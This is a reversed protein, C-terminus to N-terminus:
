RASAAVCALGLHACVQETPDGGAEILAILADFGRLRADLKCKQDEVIAELAAVPEESPGTFFQGHSPSVALKAQGNDFLNWLATIVEQLSIGLKRSVTRTLGASSGAAIFQELKASSASRLRTFCGITLPGRAVVNVIGAHQLAFWAAREGHGDGIDAFPDISRIKDGPRLIFKKNFSTAIEARSIVSRQILQRRVKINTPSFLLYGHAPLGNRGARGVEQYYQEISEPLLYHVVVRVDPVDIGMGFANTAFVVDISGATFAAQVDRKDVDPRDADFYGCSIGQDAFHASLRETGYESEKRHVYVIVKEGAHVALIEALRAKKVKEDAHRECTLTLNERFLTPARIVGVPTIRFDTCIEREDMPNLTATMCLVPPWSDSGFIEDLRRPIAKYAPRFTHGWQSVCHAEDVVVLGIHSRNKCLIFELYGDFSLREPSTFVFTPEGQFDLQRLEEYRNLVTLDSLNLVRVGRVAALRDAQETMLAILPSVVLTVGGRRIGAVQYVLSKGAGTPMLCLTNSGAIVSDIASEQGERFSSIKPFCRTLISANENM